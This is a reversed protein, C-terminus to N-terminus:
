IQDTIGTGVRLEHAAELLEPLSSLKIRERGHRAGLDREARDIRSWGDSDVYPVGGARLLAVVDPADARRPLHPLDLMLQDVVSEADARNTGVVGTSGRGIWGAVYEGLSTAGERQVRGARHPLTRSTADFPVGPLPLGRYGISRVLLQAPILQAGESTPTVSGPPDAARSRRCVSVAEVVNNGLIEVPRSWFHLHVRRPAGTLPREAWLRLREVNRAAAPSGALFSADEEELVLAEPDVVLDVGSLQGLEALEKHTFKVQAPGRRSLVHVDTIASARLREIVALPIDTAALDTVDKVLIRTVDLAVNGAGVVVASSVTSLDFEDSAVDPHGNYWGVFASASSSGRLGEGPVSLEHDSPAGFTYVVADYLDRLEAVELDVGIQVHGLFRVREHDLIAQLTLALSKMKLHDPAVGYRLLGFPTPLRDFVDVRVTAVSQRLLAEAVYLGAPGAGVVAVTVDFTV